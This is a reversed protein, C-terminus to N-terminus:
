LSWVRAEGGADGASAVVWGCAAQAAAELGETPNIVVLACGNMKMPDTLPRLRAEVVLTPASTAIEIRRLFRDFTELDKLPTWIIVCAAPDHGLAAGAARAAADYDDGREFPPDILVLNRPGPRVREAAGYGDETLVRVGEGKLVERLAQAEQPRLECGTLADGRRMGAAALMPSGPYFRVTGGDNLRRVAAKLPEFVAPAAPDAMLAIIGREAEATRRADPGELDYVGGGAHIDLVVLPKADCRMEGLAALLCAHKVLDAFNGAHFAHRYNM